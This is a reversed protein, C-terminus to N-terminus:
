NARVRRLLEPITRVLITMDQRLSWHEIYYNDFTVRDDISTSGWLGNVQALGTLGVPVRHRDRYGDVMEALAEALHPREPRPGVLSMDGRLVNWLQPLEDLSTRRLLRGLAIPSESAQVTWAGADEILEQQESAPTFPFTRFKIVDILRGHQGLRKQRYLIPGRSSLRVAIAIIALLPALLLLLVAAVVVDFRRKATTSVRAAPPVLHLDVKGIRAHAPVFPPSAVLYTRAARARALEILEDLHSDPKRPPAVIVQRFDGRKLGRKVADLDVAVEPRGVTLDVVSCEGAVVLGGEPHSAIAAIAEDAGARDGVVLVREQFHGRRWAARVAPYAIARTAAVALAMAFPAAWALVPARTDLLIPAIALSVGAAVFALGILGRRADPRIPLPARRVVALGAIALLALVAAMRAEGAVVFAAATAAVAEVAFVAAQAPAFSPRQRNVLLSEGVSPYIRPSESAAFGLTSEAAREALM